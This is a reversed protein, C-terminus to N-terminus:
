DNLALTASVWEGIEELKEIPEKYLMFYWENNCKGKGKMIIGTWLFGGRKFKNEGRALQRRSAESGELHTDVLAQGYEPETRVMKIGETIIYEAAHKREDGHRERGASGMGDICEHGKAM